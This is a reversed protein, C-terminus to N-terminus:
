RISYTATINQFVHVQIMDTQSTVGPPGDGFSYGAACANPETPIQGSNGQANVAVLPGLEVKEDNAIDQATTHAQALAERRARAAVARCDTLRLNVFARQLILDPVSRFAATLMQVGSQLAAISPHNATGSITMANAQGPPIQTLTSRDIGAAVLADEIIALDHASPVQQSNRNAIVLNIQAKDAPASASAFGTVTIGGAVAMSPFPLAILAILFLISFMKTM